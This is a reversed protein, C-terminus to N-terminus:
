SSRGAIEAMRRRATVLERAPTRRSKKAYAHLLILTGRRVVFFIRATCSRLRSRLEWLGAGLGRALPMGIPWGLQLMKIDEALTVRDVRDLKRLWQRVPERGSATSYFVLRLPSQVM